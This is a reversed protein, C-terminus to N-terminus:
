EGLILKSLDEYDFEEQMDQGPINVFVEYDEQNSTLVSELVSLVTKVGFDYVKKEDLTMNKCIREDAEDLMNKVENPIDLEIFMIEDM